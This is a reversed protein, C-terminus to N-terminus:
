IAGSKRVRGVTPSDRAVRRAMAAHSGAAGIDAVRGKMFRASVVEHIM